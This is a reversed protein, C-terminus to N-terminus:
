YNLDEVLFGRWSVRINVESDFDNFIRFIEGPQVVVLPAQDGQVTMHTRTSGEITIGSESVGPFFPADQVASVSVAYYLEAPSGTSGTPYVGTVVLLKGSPVASYNTGQWDRFNENSASGPSLVGSQGFVPIPQTPLSDGSATLSKWQGGAYGEFDGEAQNYRLSGDNPATADDAIRVKGSVDLGQSFVPTSLVSFFVCFIIAFLTKM